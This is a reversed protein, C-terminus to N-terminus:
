NYFEIMKGQEYGPVPSIAIRHGKFDPQTFVSYGPWKDQEKCILYQEMLKIFIHAGIQPIVTQSGDSNNTVEWTWNSADIINFDYPPEKEQVVWYFSRWRGWIIFDFFQYFAGSIHYGMKVVQKSWSEVKPGQFLATKWDIIKTSTELDTRYKFLGGQYECFHSTEAKGHKMLFRIDPSLHHNGGMLEKIMATAMDIETKSCILKGPNLTTFEQYAETFKITDYGFAKNTKTNIPPEFVSWTNYFDTLNGCNVRSCLMDHYVSGKLENELSIRSDEPNEQCFQMWKPSIQLQKLISSSIFPKYREGHHYDANSIENPRSSFPLPFMVENM